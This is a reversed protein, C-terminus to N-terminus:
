KREDLKFPITVLDLGESLTDFTKKKVIGVEQRDRFSPDTAHRLVPYLEMTQQAAVLMTAQPPSLAILVTKSSAGPDGTMGDGVGVDLIRVIPLVVSTVREEIIADPKSKDESVITETASFTGLIAIEDGPQLFQVLSTDSFSVPVAWEGKAVLRDLSSRSGVDNLTIYDGEKVPRLMKQGLIMYRKEWEIHRESLMEKSIAQLEIVTGTVEDSPNLDRAAKVVEVKTESSGSRKSSMMRSVMFVAAFGLIVAIILPLTNKV